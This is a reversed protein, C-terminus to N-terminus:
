NKWLSRNTQTADIMIVYEVVVGTRESWIKQKKRLTKKLLLKTARKVKNVFREGEIKESFITHYSLEFDLKVSM